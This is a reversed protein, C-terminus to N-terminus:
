SSLCGPELGVIPVGARVHQALEEVANRLLAKAEDLLGYDYLPRGCCLRKKPLIVDYGIQILVDYAATAVDPSFHDNFTDVWLIVQRTAAINRSGNLRVRQRALTRFTKPAFKPLDRHLSVGAVWKSIRALPRASTMFNTLWPFRSALPAWQGIRGMFM